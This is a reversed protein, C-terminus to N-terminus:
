VFLLSNRVLVEKTDKFIVIFYYSKGSDKLTDNKYKEFLPVLAGMDKTKNAYQDLLTEDEEGFCHRLM